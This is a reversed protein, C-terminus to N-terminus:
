GMIPQGMFNASGGEQLLGVLVSVRLLEGELSYLSYGHDKLWIFVEEASFSYHALWRSSIEIFLIPKCTQLLLTAGQLILLESGETDLKIIDVKPSGNSIWWRDLKEVEVLIEYSLGGAGTDRFGDLGSADIGFHAAFPVKGEEVGFALDFLQM